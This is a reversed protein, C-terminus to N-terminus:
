HHVDNTVQRLEIVHQSGGEYDTDVHEPIARTRKWWYALQRRDM